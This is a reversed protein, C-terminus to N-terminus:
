PGSASLAPPTFNCGNTGCTSVATATSNSPAASGSAFSSAAVGAAAAGAAAGVAAAGAGIGGAVAGGAAVGAAAGGAAAGGAIAGGAAAGSAAAAGATGVGAAAAGGATGIGAAAAGGAVAGGTVSAGTVSSGTDGALLANDAAPSTFFQLASEGCGREGQEEFSGSDLHNFVSGNPELRVVGATLSPAVFLHGGVCLYIRHSQVKFALGGRRLYLYLEGGPVRGTHVATGPELAVRNQEPTVLFAAATSAVIEDSEVVPWSPAANPSMPTKDIIVPAASSVAGLVAPPDDVACIASGCVFVLLAALKVSQLIPQMM